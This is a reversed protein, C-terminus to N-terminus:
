APQAALWNHPLLEDLKQISHSPIRGLVDCFWAFPDIKNLECSTVFSRLIAMTKGGRDSGLFTWNNRGVAIGRLSRETHNNDISL